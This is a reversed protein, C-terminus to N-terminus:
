RRIEAPQSSAGPSTQPMVRYLWWRAKAARRSASQRQFYVTWLAGDDMRLEFWHRRLYRQGSGHTRDPAHEKWRRRVDRVEYTQRKWGFRLPLAPEGIAPPMAFADGAPRILEGVFTGGFQAERQSAGSVEVTVDEDTV